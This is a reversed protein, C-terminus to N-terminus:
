SAGGLKNVSQIYTRTKKKTNRVINVYLSVQTESWERKKEPIIKVPCSKNENKCKNENIRPPVYSSYSM